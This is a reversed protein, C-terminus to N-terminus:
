IKSTSVLDTFTRTELTPNPQEKRAARVSLAVGIMFSLSNKCSYKLDCFFPRIIAEVRVTLPPM